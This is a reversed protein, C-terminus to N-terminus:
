DFLSVQTAFETVTKDVLQIVGQTYYTGSPVYHRCYASLICRGCSRRWSEAHRMNNPDIKEYTSALRDGSRDTASTNGINKNCLTSSLQWIANTLHLTNIKRSEIYENFLNRLANEFIVNKRFNNPDITIMETALAIRQVHFDIPPPFKLGPVLGEDAFYYMIMSTMKEQFGRFGKGKDNKIKDVCDDYTAENKFLNKPDGEYENVLKQANETWNKAVLGQRGLRHKTLVEIIESQDTQALIQCNFLDPRENFIATMQKFALDSKIRGSMYSCVNWFYMYHEHQGHYEGGPRLSDPKLEQPLVVECYPVINRDYGDMLVDLIEYAKPNITINQNIEPPLEQNKSNDPLKEANPM